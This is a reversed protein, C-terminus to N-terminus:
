TFTIMLYCHHCDYLVSSSLSQLAYYQFVISYYHYWSLLFNIYSFARISLFRICFLHENSHTQSVELVVWDHMALYYNHYEEEFESGYNEFPLIKLIIYFVCGFLQALELSNPIIVQLRTSLLIRFSDWHFLSSWSGPTNTVHLLPSRSWLLVSSLTWCQGLYLTASVM